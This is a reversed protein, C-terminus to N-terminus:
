LLEAEGTLQGPTMAPDKFTRNRAEQVAIGHPAIREEGALVPRLQVEIDLVQSFLQHREREYGVRETFIVLGIEAPTERIEDRGELLM